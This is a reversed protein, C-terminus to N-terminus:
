FILFNQGAIHCKSGWRMYVGNVVAVVMAGRSRCWDTIMRPNYNSTKDAFVGEHMLVVHFGKVPGGLDIGIVPYNM